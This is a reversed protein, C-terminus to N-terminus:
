NYKDNYKIKTIPVSYQDIVLHKHNLNRRGVRKFVNISDLHVTIHTRKFLYTCTYTLHKRKYEGCKPKLKQNLM